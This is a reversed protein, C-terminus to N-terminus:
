IPLQTFIPRPRIELNIVQSGLIQTKSGKSVANKLKSYDGGVREWFRQVKSSDQNIAKAFKDAMKLLNIDLLALFAIRAPSAGVKAVRRILGGKAKRQEKRRSAKERHTEKKKARDAKREAKSRRGITNLDNVGTLKYLSM